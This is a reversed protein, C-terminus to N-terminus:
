YFQKLKYTFFLPTLSQDYGPIEQSRLLKALKFQASLLFRSKKGHRKEEIIQWCFVAPDAGATKNNRM